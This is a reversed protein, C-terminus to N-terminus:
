CLVGDDDSFQGLSNAKVQICIFKLETKAKVKRSVEPAVRIVDNVNFTVNETDLEIYGEGSLCIYIEENEKHKHFFPVESNEKLTNFSIEAGTLALKDHLEVRNPGEVTYKSYKNM